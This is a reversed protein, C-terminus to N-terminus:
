SWKSHLDRVQIMQLVRKAVQMFLSSKGVTFRVYVRQGPVVTGASNDLKLEVEFAEAVPKVGQPDKPDTMNTGGGAAGMAPHPLQKQTAQLPLPPGMPHLIKDVDGVLRIQTLTDPRDAVQTLAREHFIEISQADAQEVVARAKLQDLTAVIALEQGRKFYQGPM